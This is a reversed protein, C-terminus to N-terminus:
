AVEEASAIRGIPSMRPDHMGPYYNSADLSVNPTSLGVDTLSIALTAEVQKGPFAAISIPVTQASEATSKKEATVLVEELLAGGQQASTPRLCGPM